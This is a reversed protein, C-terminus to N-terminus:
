FKGDERILDYYDDEIIEMLVDVETRICPKEYYDADDYESRVHRGFTVLHCQHYGKKYLVRMLNDMANDNVHTCDMATEISNSYIVSNDIMGVYYKNETRNLRLARKIAGDMRRM